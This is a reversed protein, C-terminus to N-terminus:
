PSKTSFPPRNDSFCSHVATSQNAVLQVQPQILHISVGAANQNLADLLVGVMEEAYERRHDGPYLALLWRYWKERIM